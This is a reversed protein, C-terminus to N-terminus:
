IKPQYKILWENIGGMVRSNEEILKIIEVHAENSHTIIKKECNDIKEILLSLRERNSILLELAEKHATNCKCNCEKSSDM